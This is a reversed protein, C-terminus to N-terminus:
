PITVLVPTCWASQLQGRVTAFRVWVNTGSVGTLTRTKGTGVLLAWTTAGFPDPSWQVVYQRRTGAPQQASVTARGHGRVPIKVDIGTPPLPASTTTPPPVYPKLGVATIDAPTLAANGTLTALNHLEGDFATRAGAEAATDAKLKQRDNVVTTNSQALTTDKKGLSAVSAQISPNGAFLASTPALQAVGAAIAHRETDGLASFSLEVRLRNNANHAMTNEM